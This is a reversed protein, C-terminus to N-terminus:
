SFVRLQALLTCVCMLLGSWSVGTRDFGIGSRFGPLGAACNVALCSLVQKWPDHCRTAMRKVSLLSCFRGTQVIILARYLTGSDHLAACHVTRGVIYNWVCYVFFLQFFYGWEYLFMKRFCTTTSVICCVRWVLIYIFTRRVYFYSGLRCRTLVQCYLRKPLFHLQLCNKKFIVITFFGYLFRSSLSLNSFRSRTNCSKLYRWMNFLKNVLLCHRNGWSHEKQVTTLHSFM